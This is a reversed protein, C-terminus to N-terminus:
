NIYETNSVSKIDSLEITNGDEIKRTSLLWNFDNKTMTYRKDNIAITPLNNIMVVEFTKVELGFNDNRITVNVKM